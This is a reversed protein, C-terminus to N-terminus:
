LIADILLASSSVNFSSATLARLVNCFASIDRFLAINLRAEKRLKSLFVSIRSFRGPRGFSICIETSSAKVSARSFLGFNRSVLCCTSSASCCTSLVFFSAMNLAEILALMPNLWTAVLSLLAYRSGSCCSMTETETDIGRTSQPTRFPFCLIALFLRLTVCIDARWSSSVTSSSTIMVTPSKLIWCFRIVLASSASSRARM